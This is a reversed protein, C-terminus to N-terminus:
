SRSPRVGAARIAGALARLFGNNEAHTGVTIRIAEPFGMWAMPRVVVGEEALRACLAATDYGFEALIFNAASPVSHIGLRDLGDSLQRLGARNAEVSRRVHASDGLAALAAAQALGSTNYPLRVRELASLLPTSGIAYGVRLGALGYVKSFTRLVLLREDRRFLELSRPYGPRDAYEFYAEDLIVPIKEPIRALFADLEDASFMTGTPNNPNALYILRTDEKVSRAIAELDFHHERLPIEVLRAGTSRVAMPFVIFSGKSTVATQGPRLFARAAFDILETSGNGLLISQAPVKHRASLAATLESGDSDPYRNVAAIAKRAAQIALPSPGLPNENTALQILHPTLRAQSDKPLRPLRRRNATRRTM